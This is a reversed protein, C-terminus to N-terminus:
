LNPQVDGASVDGDRQRKADYGGELGLRAILYTLAAAASPYIAKQQKTDTGPECDQTLPPQRANCDDEVSTLTAFYTGGFTLLAGLLARLFAANLTARVTGTSM